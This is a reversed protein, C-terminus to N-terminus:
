EELAIRQIIYKKVDEKEMKLPFALEGYLNDEALHFYKDDISTVKKGEEIRKKQHVYITKIIRVLERCDCKHLAERYESERQKEDKIWLYEIQPMEDILAQAEPRTLVPRIVVKPNEVATFVRSQESYCPHLTYYLRGKPMGMDELTGINEVECVGNTGHVVFDGIKYM